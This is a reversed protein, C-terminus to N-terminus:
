AQEEEKVRRKLAELQYRLRLPLRSGLEQFFEEIPQIEGAWEHPSVNVLARLTGEGISLGDINIDKEKPILGAATEVADVKGELRDCM